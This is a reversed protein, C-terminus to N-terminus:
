KLEGQQVQVLSGRILLRIALKFCQFGVPLSLFIFCQNNPFYVIKIENEKGIKAMMQPFHKYM